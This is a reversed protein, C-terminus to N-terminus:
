SGRLQRATALFALLALAIYILWHVVEPRSWV